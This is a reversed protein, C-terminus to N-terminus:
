HCAEIDIKPARIGRAITKEIPSLSQDCTAMTKRHCKMRNMNTDDVEILVIM